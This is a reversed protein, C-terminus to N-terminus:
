LLKLNVAMQRLADKAQPSDLAALITANRIECLVGVLETISGTLFKPNIWFEEHGQAQKAM